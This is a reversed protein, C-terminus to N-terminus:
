GARQFVRPQALQGLDALDQLDIRQPPTAPERRPLQIGRGDPTVGPLRHRVLAVLIRADATQRRNPTGEGSM